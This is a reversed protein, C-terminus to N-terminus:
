MCQCGLSITCFSVPIATTCIYLISYSRRAEGRKLSFYRLSERRKMTNTHKFILWFSSHCRHFFEFQALKQQNKGNNHQFLLHKQDTDANLKSGSGSGFKSKVNSDVDPGARSWIKIWIQKEKQIWM